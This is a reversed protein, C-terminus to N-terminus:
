KQEKKTSVFRFSVIRGNHCLEIILTTHKYSDAKIPKDCKIIYLKTSCITQKFTQTAFASKKHQINFINCFVKRSEPKGFVLYCTTYLSKFHDYVPRVNEANQVDVLLLHWIFRRFLSFFTHQFITVGTKSLYITFKVNNIYHSLM